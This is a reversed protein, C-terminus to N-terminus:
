RSRPDAKAIFYGCALVMADEVLGTSVQGYRRMARVRLSFGVYSAAIATAATLVAATKREHRPALVAGAFAATAIRALLGPLIVRDPASPLKDGAMEGTALAAAAIGAAPHALAGRMPADDPLTGLRAAEAVVALPTMSRQGAVIGMLISRLM